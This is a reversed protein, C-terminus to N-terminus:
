LIVTVAAQAGHVQAGEDLLGECVVRDDVPVRQHARGLVRDPEEVVDQIVVGLPVRERLLLLGREPAPSDPHTDRPQTVHQDLEAQLVVLIGRYLKDVFEELPDRVHDVSVGRLQGLLLPRERGEHRLLVEGLSPTLFAAM